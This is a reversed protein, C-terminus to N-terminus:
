REDSRDRWVDYAALGGLLLGGGRIGASVHHAEARKASTLVLSGWSMCREDNLLSAAQPITVGVLGFPLDTPRSRGPAGQSEIM